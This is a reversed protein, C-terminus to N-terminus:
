IKNRVCKCCTCREVIKVPRTELENREWIDKWKHYQKDWMDYEVSAAELEEETIHSSKEVCKRMMAQTRKESAERVMSESLRKLNLQHFEKIQRKTCDPHVSNNRM